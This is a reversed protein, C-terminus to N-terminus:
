SEYSMGNEMCFLSLFSSASVSPCPLPPVTGDVLDRDRCCPLPRFSHCFVNLFLSFYFFFQTFVLVCLSHFSSPFSFSSCSPQSNFPFFFLFHTSFSLLSFSQFFFLSFPFFKASIFFTPQFSLLFSFSYIANLGQLSSSLIQSPPKSPSRM